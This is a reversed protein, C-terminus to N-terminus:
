FMLQSFCWSVLVNLKSLSEIEQVLLFISCMIHTVDSFYKKECLKWVWIIAWMPTLTINENWEKFLYFFFFISVLYKREMMEKLCNM